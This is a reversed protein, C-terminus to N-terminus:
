MGGRLGGGSSFVWRKRCRCAPHAPPEIGPREQGDLPKCISCADSDEIEWFWTSLAQTIAMVAQAGYEEGTSIARTTETAAINRARNDSLLSDILTRQQSAPQPVNTSAFRVDNVVKMALMTAITSGYGNARDAVSQQDYEGGGNAGALSKAALGFTAALSSRIADTLEGAFVFYSPVNGGALGERFSRFLAILAAALEEENKMRDPLEPM